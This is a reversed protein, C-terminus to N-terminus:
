KEVNCLSPLLSTRLDVLLIMWYCWREPWVKPRGAKKLLGKGAFIMPSRRVSSRVSIPWYYRSFYYYYYCIFYCFVRSAHLRAIAAIIRSLAPSYSSWPQWSSLFPSALTWFNLYHMVCYIINVPFNGFVVYLVNGDRLQKMTVVELFQWIRSDQCGQSLCSSSVVSMFLSLPLFKHCTQECILSWNRNKGERREGRWAKIEIKKTNQLFYKRDRLTEKREAAWPGNRVIESLSFPACIKFHRLHRWFWLGIELFFEIFSSPRPHIDLIPSYSHRPLRDNRSM